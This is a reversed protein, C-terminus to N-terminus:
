VQRSLTTQFAQVATYFNSAQTDTLGDGISSLACEYSSFLVASSSSVSVAALFIPINPQVGGSTTISAITTSNRYLKSSTSSTRSAIIMAQYSSFSGEANGSGGEYSIFACNGPTNNPVLQINQSGGNFAGMVEQLVANTNRSYYSVCVSNLTLDTNAILGTNMYASSGNPTVGTSAFTWGSSFTGTFSASKLNQACAAASAGVMPYVAKMSSWIGASKMDLVLQNTANKETTTLTGGATTVRDFFAQADPDFGGGSSVATRGGVRIGVGVGFM